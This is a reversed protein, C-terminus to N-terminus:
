FLDLWHELSQGLEWASYGVGLEDFLNLRSSISAKTPFYVTEGKPLSIKHEAADANWTLKPSHERLVDLYSSQTIAEYNKYGYMALGALIKARNPDGANPALAEVAERVWSIPANPGILGRHASFDYTMLSFFDVGEPGPRALDAFGDADLQGPPLVLAIKRGAGRAGAHLRAALARLLPRYPKDIPMELVVGDFDNADVIDTVKRVVENFMWFPPGDAPRPMEWIVRPLVLPCRRKGRELAYVGAGGCAARLQVLFDADIDHVGTVEVSGQRTGGRLQLWAPSVLSLKAAYKVALDYGRRHWPTVYALAARTRDAAFARAGVACAASGGRAVLASALPAPPASSGSGKPPAVAAARAQLGCAAAVDLESPADDPVTGEPLAADGPGSSSISGDEGVRLEPNRGASARSLIALSSLLLVLPLARHVM